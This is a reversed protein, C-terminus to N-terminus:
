AESDVFASARHQSPGYGHLATAGRQIELGENRIAIMRERIAGSLQRDLTLIERIAALDSPAPAPAVQLLEARADLAAVAADLDGDQAARAQERALDLVQQYPSM